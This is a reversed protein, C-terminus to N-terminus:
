FAFIMEIEDDSYGMRKLKKIRQEVARDHKEVFKRVLEENKKQAKETLKIEPANQYDM